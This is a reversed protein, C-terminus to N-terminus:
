SPRSPHCRHATPRLRRPATDFTMVMGIKKRTDATDCLPKVAHRAYTRAAETGRREVARPQTRQPPRRPQSAMYAVAAATFCIAPVEIPMAGPQVNSNLLRVCQNLVKKVLLDQVPDFPPCCNIITITGV